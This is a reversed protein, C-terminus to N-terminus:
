PQNDWCDSFGAQVFNLHVPSYRELLSLHHTLVSVSTESNVAVTFLISVASSMV